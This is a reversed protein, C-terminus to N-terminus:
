HNRTENEREEKPITIFLEFGNASQTHFQGNFALVRSKINELGIGTQPNTSRVTGNDAIILQYFAPQERLFLRAQSGNSHRVINTLGEHVIALLAEKLHREPSHRISYDFDLSCFTFADALQKMQKQLDISQDHLDHVSNRISDMAESLTEKLIHLTDLQERERTTALLAGIQLLGRSLLHGVNDHIDRAIRNREALMAVTIENNQRRILQHNQQQLRRTLQKMVDQWNFYDERMQRYVAARRGLVISLLLLSGAVIAPGWGAESGLYFLSLFAFPLASALPWAACDYLLLPLFVASEPIWLTYILFILVLIGRLLVRDCYVILGSLCAAMLVTGINNHSYGVASCIFLLLMRDILDQYSYM